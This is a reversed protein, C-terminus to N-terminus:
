EERGKLDELAPYAKEGIDELALAAYHRVVQNDNKLERLLVPLAIEERDM